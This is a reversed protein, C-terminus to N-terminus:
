CEYVVEAKTAQQATTTVDTWNHIRRRIYTGVAVPSLMNMCAKVQWAGTDGAGAMSESYLGAGLNNASYQSLPSKEENGLLYRAFNRIPPLPRMCYFDEGATCDVLTDFEGLKGVQRSSWSLRHKSKPRM